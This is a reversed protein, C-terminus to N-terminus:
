KKESFMVAVTTEGNDTGLTVVVTRKKGADEASLMGGSSNKDTSLVTNTITFGASKLNDQYFSSVKDIADKTKFSYTASSGEVGQASYSGEPSSGPYSPIWTPVQATGSGFKTTGEPSQVVVTGNKGDGSVRSGDPGEFVFKGRKADEFNMTMVKGTKKDRVTITGKGDDTSVVEVDPNMTTVLKAIAFGPNNAAHQVGRYLLYGGVSIGIGVLLILGVVIVLIWVLPSTKKPAPAGQPAM